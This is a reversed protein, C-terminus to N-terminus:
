NVCIFYNVNLSRPTVDFTQQIVNDNLNWNFDINAAGQSSPGNVLKNANGSVNTLSLVGNSNNVWGDGARRLNIRGTVPVNPLQNRAITKSNSGSISGLAGGSAVYTASTTTNASTSIGGCSHTRGNLLRWSGHDTTQLGTKIDGCTCAAASSSVPIIDGQANTGLLQANPIRSVRVGSANNTGSDVHLRNGPSTTGVGVNGDSKRIYFQADNDAQVQLNAGPALTAPDKGVKMQAMAPSAALALAALLSAAATQRLTRPSCPNRHPQPKM